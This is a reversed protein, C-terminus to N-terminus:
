VVSKRDVSCMSTFPPATYCRGRITIDANGIGWISEIKNSDVQQKMEFEDKIYLVREM